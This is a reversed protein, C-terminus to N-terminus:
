QKIVNLQSGDRPYFSMYKFKISKSINIMIFQSIQENFMNVWDNNVSVLFYNINIKSLHKSYIKSINSKFSIKKLQSGIFYMNEFNIKSIFFIVNEFFMSFIFLISTLLPKISYMNFKLITIENIKEFINIKNLNDICIFEWDIYSFNNSLHIDNGGGKARAGGVPPFINQINKVCSASSLIINNNINIKNSSSIIYKNLINSLIYSFADYHKNSIIKLKDFNFILKNDFIFFDFINLYKLPKFINIFDDYNVNELIYELPKIKNKSILNKILPLKYIYIENNFIKKSLNLKYEHIINLYDHNIINKCFTENLLDYTKTIQLFYTDYYIKKIFQENNFYENMSILKSNIINFKINLNDTLNNNEGGVYPFLKTDKDLVDILINNDTFNDVIKTLYNKIQNNPKYGIAIIFYRYSFDIDSSFYNIKDFLLTLITLFQQYILDCYGPLLLILDGNVNLKNLSFVIQFLIYKSNLISSIFRTNINQPLLGTCIPSINKYTDFIILDYNTKLQTSSILDSMKLNYFNGLTSIHNVNPYINKFKIIMNQYLEMHPADLLNGNKTEISNYNQLFDINRSDNLKDLYILNFSELFTPLVGVQIINKYRNIDLGRFSTEAKIGQKNFEKQTNKKFLDSYVYVGRFITDLVLPPIKKFLLFSYKNYISILPNINIYKNIFMLLIVKQKDNYDKIDKIITNNQIIYRDNTYILEILEDLIIFKYNFNTDSLYNNQYNM